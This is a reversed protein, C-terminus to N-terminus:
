VAGGVKSIASKQPNPTAKLVPNKQIVRATKFNARYILNAKFELSKDAEAEQCIPNFTHAVVTYGM